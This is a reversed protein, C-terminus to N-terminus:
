KRTVGEKLKADELDLRLAEKLIKSKLEEKPPRAVFVVQQNKDQTQIYYPQVRVLPVLGFLAILLLLNAIFALLAVLSFSRAMWLYREEQLTEQATRSEVEQTQQVM